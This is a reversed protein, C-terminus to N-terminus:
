APGDPAARVDAIDDLDEEGVEGAKARWQAVLQKLRVVQSSPHM